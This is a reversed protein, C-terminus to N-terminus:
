IQQVTKNASIEPSVSLANSRVEESALYTRSRVLSAQGIIGTDKGPSPVISPRKHLSVCLNRALRSKLLEPVLHICMRYQEWSKCKPLPPPDCAAGEANVGVSPFFAAM